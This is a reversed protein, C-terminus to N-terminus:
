YSCERKARRGDKSEMFSGTECSVRFWCSVSSTKEREKPNAYDWFLNIRQVHCNLKVTVAREALFCTYSAIEGLIFRPLLYRM